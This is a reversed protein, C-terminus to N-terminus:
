SYYGTGDNIGAQDGPLFNPDGTETIVGGGRAVRYRPGRATGYFVASRMDVHGNDQAGAFAVSFLPNNLLTIASGQYGITAGTNAFAHFQAGGLITYPVAMAQSGGDGNYASCIHCFSCVDFYLNSMGWVSSDIMLGVGAWSYNQGVAGDARLTMSDLFVGADQAVAIAATQTEHIIVKTPDAHNGVFKVWPGVAAYQFAGGAYTGDALHVTCQFGNMDIRDRIFNYAHTLSAWPLAATGPNGDSGNPSCYFDAPGALRLRTLRTLAQYLQTRDTKSLVLGSTEIVFSVEEQIANMWDAEVVTAAEGTLPSGNTFYGPAGPALPQPLTKAATTNDIRHM